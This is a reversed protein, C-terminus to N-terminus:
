TSRSYDDPGTGLLSALAPRHLPKVLIADFLSVTLFDIVSTDSLAVIKCRLFDPNKRLIRCAARGDDEGPGIDLLVVDVSWAAANAIAVAATQANAVEHGMSKVHGAIAQLLQEDKAVVLIKM